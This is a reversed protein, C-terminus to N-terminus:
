SANTGNETRRKFEAITLSLARTRCFEHPSNVASLRVYHANATKAFLRAQEDSLTPLAQKADTVNFIITKNPWM